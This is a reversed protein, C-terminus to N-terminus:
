NNAFGGTNRQKMFAKNEAYKVYRDADNSIHSYLSDAVEREESSLMPQRTNGNSRNSGDPVRRSPPASSGTGAARNQPKEVNYDLDGGRSQEQTQSYPSSRRAETQRSTDIDEGDNDDRDNTQRGEGIQDEIEAYYEPTGVKLGKLNEAYGAAAVVRRMYAPDNMMKPHRRAWEASAPPIDSLLTGDALAEGARPAAARTTREGKVKEINGALWNKKDSEARKDAAIESLRRSMKAVEKGHGPEDSLQAIREEIGDAESDLNTILTESASLQTRLHREAESMTSEEAKVRRGREEAAVSEATSLRGQMDAMEAKLRALEERDNPTNDTDLSPSRKAM